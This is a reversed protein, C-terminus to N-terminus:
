ELPETAVFAATADNYSAQIRQARANIQDLADQKQQTTLTVTQAAIQVRQLYTQMDRAAEALEAVRGLTIDLNAPIM